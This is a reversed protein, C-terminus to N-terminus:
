TWAGIQHMAFSYASSRLDPSADRLDDGHLTGPVVHAECLSARAARLADCLAGGQRSWTLWEDASGAIWMPPDAYAAVYRFPSTTGYSYAFFRQARVGLSAMAASAFPSAGDQAANAPSAVPSWAIVGTFHGRMKAGVTAALHGGASDGVIVQRTRDTYSAAEYTTVVETVDALMKAGDNAVAGRTYDINVAVWGHSAWEDATAAWVGRSGGVWGGGHIFYAV